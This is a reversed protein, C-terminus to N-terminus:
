QPRKRESTVRCTALAPSLAAREPRAIRPGVAHGERGGLWLYGGTISLWVMGNLLVAREIAGLWETDTVMTALGFLDLGLGVVGAIMTGAYLRHYASHNKFGPLLLFCCLPFLVAMTQATYEHVLSVPTDETGPVETPFIAIILFAVGLLAMVAVGTKVLRRGCLAGRLRWAFLLLMLGFLCFLATELWGYPGWVLQSITNVVRSYAPNASELAATASVFCLPATTMGIDTARAAAKGAGTLSQTIKQYREHVFATNM